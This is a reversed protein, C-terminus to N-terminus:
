RGQGSSQDDEEEKEQGVREERGLKANREKKNLFFFIRSVSEEWRSM